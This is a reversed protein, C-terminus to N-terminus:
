LIDREKKIAKIKHHTKNAKHAMQIQATIVRKSMLSKKSSHSKNPYQATKAKDKV